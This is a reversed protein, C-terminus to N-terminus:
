RTWGAAWDEQNQWRNGGSHHGAAAWPGYARLHAMGRARRAAQTSEARVPRAKRRNAARCAPRACAKTNIAASRRMKAETHGAIGPQHYACRKRERRYRVKGPSSCAHRVNIECTGTASKARRRVPEVRLAKAHELQRDQGAICLSARLAKAHELRRNQGAVCQCPACRKRMNLDGIKDPM